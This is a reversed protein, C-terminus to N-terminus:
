YGRSYRNYYPNSSQQPVRYGYYKAQQASYVYNKPQRRYQNSYGYGSYYKAMNRASGLANDNGLSFANCESISFLILFSLIIIKKM